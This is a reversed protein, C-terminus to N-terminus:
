RLRLDVRVSDLFGQRSDRRSEVTAIASASEDGVTTVVHVCTIGADPGHTVVRYLGAVTTTAEALFRSTEALAACPARSVRVTVRAGAIPLDAATRVIGFVVAAPLPYTCACTDTPLVCAALGALLAMGFHLPRLM